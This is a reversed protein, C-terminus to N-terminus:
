NTLKTKGASNIFRLTKTSRIVSTVSRTSKPFNSMILDDKADPMMELLVQGSQCDEEWPM